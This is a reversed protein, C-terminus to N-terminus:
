DAFSGIAKEEDDFMEFVGILQSMTLLKYLKLNVNLLKIEADRRACTTKCRILEGLGSSDMAKVGALNLLLKDRNDELADLVAGRLQVDGEGITIRGELDLVTVDGEYRTTINMVSGGNTAELQMGRDDEPRM